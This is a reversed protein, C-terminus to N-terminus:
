WTSTEFNSCFKFVSLLCKHELERLQWWVNNEAHKMWTVQKVGSLKQIQSLRHARMSLRDTTDLEKSGMPQLEGPEETWPTIRPLISLQTGMEKELPDEQGLFEVWM